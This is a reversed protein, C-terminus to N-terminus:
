RKDTMERWQSLAKNFFNWTNVSDADVFVKFTTGDKRHVELYSALTLSHYKPYRWMTDIEQYFAFEVQSRSKHGNDIWYSAIRKDTFFNGSQKIPQLGTGQSNFLIIQENAELLGLSTLYKKDKVSLDKGSKIGCGPLSILSCIIAPLIRSCLKAKM